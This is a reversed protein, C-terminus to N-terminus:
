GDFFENLVTEIESLRFPKSVLKRHAHAPPIADGGGSTFAFPIDKAALADAVPWGKAEGLNIDVLAADVPQAAIIALADEVSAAQAPEPFGLADFMDVLMMGILVDDEVLLINRNATM